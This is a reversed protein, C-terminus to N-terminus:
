HPSRRNGERKARDNRQQARDRRHAARLACVRGKGQDSLWPRTAPRGGVSKGRTRISISGGKLNERWGLSSNSIGGCIWAVPDEQAAVHRSGLADRHWRRIGKPIVGEFSGYELPHDEVHVALRKDAPDLSPGKPIAWSLLV